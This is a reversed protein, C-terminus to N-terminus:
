FGWQRMWNSMWDDCIPGLSALTESVGVARRADLLVPEAAKSALGEFFDLLKIAPNQGIDEIVTASERLAAVWAELTVMQVEHAANLSQAVKPALKEWTTPWPNTVHYVEAGAIAATPSRTSHVALEVISQAAVDVPVWDVMELQGLSRPLKGLYKSSAILSPLWEQKPWMGAETTPGAIQGVRCAVTPIGADRAATHLIREAVLKSEGYGIAEPIRWDEYVRELVSDTQGTAAYWKSVASLSSIFFIQAGYTSHASFDIFNRTTSIHSEFSDITLNFDVKWANHIVTTVESLLKTYDQASLSFYPKSMDVDLCQVKYGLPQLGRDAQSKKQREGSGHGRNLCYVRSVNFDRILSDLIYSGLSGTSGTLLVVFGDVPKPEARRTTLPLNETHLSYLRKMKEVDSESKHNINQGESLASVIRTLGAISPNAYVVRAQISQRKGHVLLHKNIRRAIATVQLSDLGLEFLNANLDLEVMDIGVATTIIDRVIDEVSGYGNVRPETSEPASSELSRENAKYLADFENAYLDLTMTRQVTGKGARLMPKEVSTFIIMNRYVQGHSPSKDNAAQVSPWITGLLGLRESKNKPPHVAEVLVSSQFRGLGNVLAGKVAPNTSIISEMELPNLKEGTSYVIIDDARGRYLWVNKKTPHKSYLDRMPWEDLEPFTEFIGQYRQLKPDKVIFQEYLDGSFHRYVQGLVSSVKIYAWDELECMQVPFVGCETTGICNVLKTKTIILDGVAQPLPGGGFMTQELLSLNDLYEPNNVLDVWVAPPLCSHQVNGHVHVANVTEASPPFPGLVVTYGSYIVGPLFMAMGATHFLPFGLYVRKGACLPPYCPEEGVLPLAAYADIIAYTGHTQIVPKPLSTSGSTHMVMFPDSRAEAFTKTYPYPEHAGDEETWHKFGPVELVRMQRVALIHKVAPLHFNPPLLFVDCQTKEFLSLHAELTNRPSNLLLKYGTKVCALVLIGYVVDQPGLYTLTPFLGQGGRGLHKEIYWACRDIARAFTKADIDEFGDEPNQTKAVSYLVRHPDTGAIEDVLSPVLRRDSGM